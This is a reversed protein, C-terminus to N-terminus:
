QHGFNSHCKYQAEMTIENVLDIFINNVDAYNGCVIKILKGSKFLFRNSQM